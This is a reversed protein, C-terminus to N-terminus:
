ASLLLSSSSFVQMAACTQKDLDPLSGTSVRTVFITLDDPNGGRAMNSAAVRQLSEGICMVSARGGGGGGTMATCVACDVSCQRLTDRVHQELCARLKADPPTPRKFKEAGPPKAALILNDFLGDSGAIIVDDEFVQPLDRMLLPIIDNTSVKEIEFVFSVKFFM